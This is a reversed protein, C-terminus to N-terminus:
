HWLLANPFYCLSPFPSNQLKRKLRIKGCSLWHECNWSHSQLRFDTVQKSRVSFAMEWSTWALKPLFCPHNVLEQTLVYNGSDFSSSDDKACSNRQTNFTTFCFQYGPSSSWMGPQPCLPFDWMWLSSILLGIAGLACHETTDHSTQTQKMVSGLRLGTGKGRIGGWDFYKKM